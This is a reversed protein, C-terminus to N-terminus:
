NEEQQSVTDVTYSGDDFSVLSKEVIMEYICKRIEVTDISKLPSHNNFKTIIQDIPLISDVLIEFIRLKYELRKEQDYKVKHYKKQEILITILTLVLGVVGILTASNLISNM